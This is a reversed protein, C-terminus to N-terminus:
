EVWGWQIWRYRTETMLMPTYNPSSNQARNQATAARVVAGWAVNSIHKSNILEETMAIAQAHEGVDFLAAVALGRLEERKSTTAAVVLAEKLDDRGHDRALYLSARIATEDALPATKALAELMPRIVTA